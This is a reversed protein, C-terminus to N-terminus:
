ISQTRRNVMLDRRHGSWIAIVLFSTMWFGTNGWLSGSAASAVAERIFLISIFTWVWNANKLRLVLIASKLALFTHLFFPASGLLGVSMLSELYINHPYYNTLQENVYRGFLPDDLFQQYAGQFSLVRLVTSRDSIVDIRQLALLAKEFVAPEIALVAIASLIALVSINVMRAKGRQVIIAILFCMGTSIIMGRSQANAAIYILVPVAVTAEIAVRKSKRGVVFYFILFSSCTYALSIPNVKEFALRRYTLDQGTQLLVLVAGIVFLLAFASFVKQSDAESIQRWIAMLAIVAPITGVAFVLLATTTDPPIRIQQVWANEVLRLLYIVLFFLGPWAQLPIASRYRWACVFSVLLFLLSVARYVIIPLNSDAELLSVYTSFTYYGITPFSLAFVCSPSLLLRVLRFALPRHKVEYASPALAPPSM